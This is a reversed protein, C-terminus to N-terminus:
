KAESVEQRIQLELPRLYLEMAFELKERVM